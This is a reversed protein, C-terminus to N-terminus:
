REVETAPHNLTSSLPAAGWGEDSVGGLVGVKLESM